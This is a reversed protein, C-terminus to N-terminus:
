QLTAAMLAVPPEREAVDVKVVCATTVPTLWVIVKPGIPLRIRPAPNTGNLAVALEPNGTVNVDFLGATQATIPVVTAKSPVPVQEIVALGAQCNWMHRCCHRDGPCEVTEAAVLPGCGSWNIVTAGQRIMSVRLGVPGRPPGNM